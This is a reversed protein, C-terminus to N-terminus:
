DEREDKKRFNRVMDNNIKENYHCGPNATLM